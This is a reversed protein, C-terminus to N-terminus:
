GDGYKWRCEEKYDDWTQRIMGPSYLYNMDYMRDCFETFNDCDGIVIQADAQIDILLDGTKSM